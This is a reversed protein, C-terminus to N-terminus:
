KPHQTNYWNIFQIVCQWIAEITSNSEYDFHRVQKNEDTVKMIKCGKGLSLWIQIICGHQSEIKEVVPMIWLWNDHYHLDKDDFYGFDKIDWNKVRMWGNNIIENRKYGLFKAILINGDVIKDWEIIKNEM